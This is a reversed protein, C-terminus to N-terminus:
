GVIRFLVIVAVVGRGYVPEFILRHLPLHERKILCRAVGHHQTLIYDVRLLIIVIPVVACDATLRNIRVVVLM